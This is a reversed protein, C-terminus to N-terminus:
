AAERIKRVTEKDTKAGQLFRCNNGVIEEKSYGTLDLFSQNVYVLPNDEQNLDTCVFSESFNEGISKLIELLNVM